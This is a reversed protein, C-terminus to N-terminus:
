HRRWQKQWNGHREPRKSQVHQGTFFIMGQKSKAGFWGGLANNRNIGGDESDPLGVANVLDDADFVTGPALHILWEDAVERWLAVREAQLANAMGQQGLEVGKPLDFTPSSSASTCSPCPKDADVKPDYVTGM